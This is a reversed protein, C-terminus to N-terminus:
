AVIGAAEFEIGLVNANQALWPTVTSTLRWLHATNAVVVTEDDAPATLIDPWLDLTAQGAGNSNTQTLTKYLRATSGAGLQIYDGALLYGTASLPLGDINLENGTQAAGQVAPTGPTDKASGRPTAGIPDGMLFTGVPGKLSLLFALWDEVLDRQQSPIRVNCAWAKGTHAVIDQKYTFPSESVAVANRPRMQLQELGLTSLPATLPYTIAM